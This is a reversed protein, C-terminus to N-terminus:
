ANCCVNKCCIFASSYCREIRLVVFTCKALPAALRDPALSTGLTGIPDAAAVFEPTEGALFRTATGFGGQGNGRPVSVNNNDWKSAVDLDPKGDRHVDKM